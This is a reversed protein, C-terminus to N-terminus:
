IIAWKLMMPSLVRIWGSKEASQTALDELSYQSIGLFAGLPCGFTLVLFTRADFTLLVAGSGAVIPRL